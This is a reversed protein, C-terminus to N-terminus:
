KVYNLLKAIIDVPKLKVHKIIKQPIISTNKILNLQYKKQKMKINSKLNKYNTKHETKPKSKFLLSLESKSKYFHFSTKNKKNIDTRKPTFILNNDYSNIRNILNKNRFFKHILKNDIKEKIDELILNNIVIKKTIGKKGYSVIKPSLLRENQYIIKQLDKEKISYTKDISPEMTSVMLKNLEIKKRKKNQDNQLKCGSDLRINIKKKKLQFLNLNKISKIPKKDNSDLSKLRKSQSDINTNKSNYYKINSMIKSNLKKKDNTKCCSDNFSFSNIIGEKSFNYELTKFQLFRKNKAKFMKSTEIETKVLKPIEAGNKNNFFSDILSKRINFLREFLVNRKKTFLKKESIEVIKNKKMEEYLKEDVSFIMNENEKAELSFCYLGKEDEYENLLIVDPSSIDSIKINLENYYFHKFKVNYSLLAEADHIAKKINYLQNRYNNDMNNKENKKEESSNNKVYYNLIKAIGHLSNKISLSFSGSYVIILKTPKEGQTFIFNGRKVICKTFHTYYKKYFIYEPLGHFIPLSLHFTIIDRLYKKAGKKLCKNFIVRNLVALHCVSSTIITATRQQNEKTLAVEGILSGKGLSHGIIYTFIKLYYFKNEIKEEKRIFKLFEHNILDIRKIYNQPNCTRNLDYYNINYQKKLNFMDLLNQASIRFVSLNMKKLENEENLKLLSNYEYDKKNSNHKLTIDQTYSLSNNKKRFTPSKEFSKGKRHLNQEENYEDSNEFIQIPFNPFNENITDNLLGYESYKLLKALYFLYDYKSVYMYKFSKILINVQGDLILYATNGLDGYKLLVYNKQIKQYSILKSLNILIKFVDEEKRDIDKGIILQSINPMLYLFSSITNIAEKSRINDSLSSILLTVIQEHTIRLEKYLMEIDHKYGNSSPPLSLIQTLGNELLKQQPILESSDKRLNFKANRPKLARFTKTRKRM